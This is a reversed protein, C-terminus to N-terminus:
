LYDVGEKELETEIAMLPTENSAISAAPQQQELGVKQDLKPSSLESPCCCDDAFALCHDDSRYENFQKVFTLQNGSIKTFQICYLQGDEDDCVWKDDLVQM